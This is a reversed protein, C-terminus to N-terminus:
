GHPAKASAPLAYPSGAPLPAAEKAELAPVTPAPASGRLNMTVSPAPTAVPATIIAARVVKPGARRSPPAIKMTDFAVEVQFGAAQLPPDVFSASFARLEGPQIPGGAPTIVQSLLKHNSKDLLMVRLPAPDRPHTEINRMNGTITLAAHGDKLTPGGDADIALGVPNVPMRAFAYAGATAPLIRVVDTRFLVAVLALVCFGAGMVAWVAGVAAAERTKRKEVAEERLRSSVDARVRGKLKVPDEGVIAADAHPAFSLPEDMSFAPEPSPAAERWAHGCQACRVKRGEPGIRAEDVFYRSACEPCTLIM